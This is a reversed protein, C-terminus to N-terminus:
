NSKLKKIKEIMWPRNMETESFPYPSNKNALVKYGLIGVVGVIDILMVIVGLLWDSGTLLHNTTAYYIFYIGIPLHGFFVAFNGPAYFSKLMKSVGLHVPLQMLGVLVGGLGFWIQNPFFAALLYLGYVTLVNGVM